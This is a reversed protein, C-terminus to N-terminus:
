VAITSQGVIAVLVNGDPSWRHFGFEVPFVRKQQVLLQAFVFARDNLGRVGEALLAQLGAHQHGRAVLLEVAFAPAM